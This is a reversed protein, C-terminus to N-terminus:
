AAFRDAAIIKTPSNNEHIQDQIWPEGVAAHRVLWAALLIVGIPQLAVSAPVWRVLIREAFGAGLVFLTVFAAAALWLSKRELYSTIVTWAAFPAIILYTLRETGPGFLLQWCTWAALTYTVIESCPRHGGRSRKLWVCSALVTLGAVAQLIFYARGDVPTRFQEWITWADRYGTFREVNEQRLTLRDVWARYYGVVDAPAKTLFPISALALCVLILRGILKKPWQVSLLAAAIVPWIKIYVPAALFWAARWWQNKVIAAAGFLIGAMLLANSQLSWISRLSGALVLWLFIAEAEKPWSSPMVHRYFIRLSWLFLGISTLGWLTQGLWDPLMAFPTFLVSFTPSYFYSRDDYMAAGAWWHRPGIVFAGYVSHDSGQVLVKICLAITLVLWATLAALIWRRARGTIEDDILKM